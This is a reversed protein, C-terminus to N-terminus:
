SSLRMEFVFQIENIFQTENVFEIMSLWGFDARYKM